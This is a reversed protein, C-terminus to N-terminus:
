LFYQFVWPFVVNKLGLHTAKPCKQTAGSREQARRPREQTSRPREQQIELSAERSFPSRPTVMGAENEPEVECRNRRRRRRRGRRRPIEAEAVLEPRAEEAEQEEAAEPPLHCCLKWHIEKEAHPPGEISTFHSGSLIDEVSVDELEEEDCQVSAIELPAHKRAVSSTKWASM